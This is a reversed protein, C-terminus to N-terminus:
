ESNQVPGVRGQPKRRRANLKNEEIGIESLFRIMLHRGEKNVISVMQASYYIKKIIVSEEEKLYQRL